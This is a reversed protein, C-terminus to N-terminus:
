SKCKKFIELTKQRHGISEYYWSAYEANEVRMERLAVHAEHHVNDLLIKDARKFQSLDVMRKMEADPYVIRIQCSDDTTSIMTPMAGRSITKPSEQCCDYDLQGISDEVPTAESEVDLETIQFTTRTTTM